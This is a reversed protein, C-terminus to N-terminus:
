FDFVLIWLFQLNIKNTDKSINIYYLVKTTTYYIM